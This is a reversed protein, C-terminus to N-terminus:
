EPGSCRWEVGVRAVRPAGIANESGLRLELEIVGGSPLRLALPSTDRPLEGIVAYTAEALGEENAAHRVSVSVKGGAGSLASVYVNLWDTQSQSVGDALRAERGCGGFVHSVSGEREFQGGLAGGSPDGGARPGRGVPVQATVRATAPDIRTALGVGGPGGQTSLAWLQGAADMTLAFTEFPTLTEAGLAIAASPQLSAAPLKAVAGSSYALWSREVGAQVGRPTLLSPVLSTQWTNRQADYRFVRECGYGSMLLRGQPDISLADLAYCPYPVPMPALTDPALPDFRLVTGARDILWLNGFADFASASPQLAALAYRGIERGSQGDRQMLAHSGACGLWVNGAWDGDPAQAGDVALTRVDDAASLPLSLLVCEDVGVPLLEAPGRSTYVTGDADRDRCRAADGSLKTLHPEGGFSGDLVWADARHDVAVQIPYGGRTRYRAVERANDTDIKSVSGEDTNAVWLFRSTAPRWRLSLEGAATLSLPETVAFPAVATGWVGGKCADNCGGCPSEVGEDVFGDCDDDSGNCQEVQPLVAGDCAQWAGDVCYTKGARCLGVGERESPGEFCAAHEGRLCPCGAAVPAAECDALGAADGCSLARRPESDDCDPGRACGNGYGDGDRDDCVLGAGDGCGACVSALSLAVLLNKRSVRLDYL